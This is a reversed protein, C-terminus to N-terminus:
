MSTGSRRGSIDLTLDTFKVVRLYNSLHHLPEAQVFCASLVVLSIPHKKVQKCDTCLDLQNHGDESRPYDFHSKHYVCPCHLLNIRKWTFTFTERYCVVSPNSTTSKSQGLRPTLNTPPPNDVGHCPRKVYPFLVSVWQVFSAPRFPNQHRYFERGGPHPTEILLDQLM